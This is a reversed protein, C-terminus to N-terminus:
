ENFKRYQKRILVIVIVALVVAALAIYGYAEWPSEVATTDSQQVVAPVGFWVIFLAHTSHMM